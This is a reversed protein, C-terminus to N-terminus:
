REAKRAAHETWIGMLVLAMSVGVPWPLGWAFVAVWVVLHALVVAAAVGAVAVTATGLLMLFIGIRM